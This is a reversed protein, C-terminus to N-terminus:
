GRGARVGGRAGALVALRQTVTSRGPRDFEKLWADGLSAHEAWLDNWTRLAAPAIAALSEAVGPIDNALAADAAHTRLNARLLAVDNQTGGSVLTQDSDGFREDDIRSIDFSGDQMLYGDSEADLHQLGLNHGLEHSITSALAQAAQELNGPTVGGAGVAISAIKTSYVRAESTLRANGVDVQGMGLWQSTGGIYVRDYQGSAPQTLTFIIPLNLPTHPTEAAGSTTYDDVVLALTRNILATRQNAALGFDTADLIPVNQNYAWGSPSSGGEFNLWVIQDPTEGPPDIELTYSGYTPGSMGVVQIYYWGSAANSLFVTATSGTLAALGIPTVGDSRFVNLDLVGQDASFTVRVYDAATGTDRLYVRYWDGADAMVLNSITLPGMVPGLNPSNEVLMPRALVVGSSDNNEYADDAVAPINTLTLTYDGTTAVFDGTGTLPNYFVNDASSVGLYYTGATAFTYALYSDRSYAEGPAHAADNCDVGPLGQGVADFLRIYSDLHGDTDIDFAVRQGALVHFGFMDVDDGPNIEFGRVTAGVEIMSAESIQDNDDGAACDVITLAYGGTSGILDGTGLLANYASNGHGSVGVYYTGANAFVYELYSDHSPTEGPAAADDNAYAGALPSGSPGFLRLYSDLTGGACDVDFGVRQGAHVTFAFLDVDVGPDIAGGVITSGVFAVAAENLQDDPDAFLSNNGDLNAVLVSEPNRAHYQTWAADNHFLYLGHNQLDGVLDACGNADLDGATLQDARVGTLLRWAGTSAYLEWVGVGVGFDVILEDGGSGNLNGTTMTAVSYSHLNRWVANNAYSWLGQGPGFDVILEDRGSADLDGATLAAPNYAHLLLWQSDNWFVHLGANGLDAALEAAGNGDLDAVVLADVHATTLNRWQNAQPQYEWLGVGDGFDIVVEDRGDLNLDGAVVHRASYSHLAQWTTGNYLVYMGLGLGAGFDVVLDSQGNGDLDAATASVPDYPHLRQWAANNKYAWLGEAGFDVVLDDQPLACASQVTEPMEDFPLPAVGSLVVRDELSELRLRRSAIGPARRRLRRSPQRGTRMWTSMTRLTAQNM